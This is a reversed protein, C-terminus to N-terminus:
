APRNLSTPSLPSATLVHPRQPPGRPRLWRPPSVQEPPQPQLHTAPARQNKGQEPKAGPHEEVAQNKTCRFM